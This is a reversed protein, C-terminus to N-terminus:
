TRRWISKPRIHTCCAHLTHNHEGKGQKLRAGLRSSLETMDSCKRQREAVVAYDFRGAVDTGKLRDSHRTVDMISDYSNLDGRPDMPTLGAQMLSSGRKWRPGRVDCLEPLCLRYPNVVYSSDDSVGKEVLWMQSWLHSM